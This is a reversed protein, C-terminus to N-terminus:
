GRQAWMLVRKFPYFFPRRDALVAFLREKYVKLFQAYLDPPLRSEYFTLFSGKVWEIVEERSDLRCGYVKLLVAQKEFGVEDLWEAYVQPKESWEPPLRESLAERFPNEEALQRGIIHSPYDQNAPMQIAIEGGPSLAGFFKKLLTKHDMCWHLAANSFILDCPVPLDFQSLDAQVFSLTPAAFAKAKKLMEPSLDVGVTKKSSVYHHLEKTWEGTGCGLDVSNRPSRIKILSFLDDVPRKREAKFREYQTPNWTDVPM